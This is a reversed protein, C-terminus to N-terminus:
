GQRALRLFRLLRYLFPRRLATSQKGIIAYALATFARSAPSKADYLIVPKKVYLAEHVREDEPILSLVKHGTADEVEGKTLEHRKGEYRNIVVGLVKTGREEALNIAKMTDTLSPYDPTTIAIVEDSVGIVLNSEEMLGPASDLLIMEYEKRLPMLVSKIAQANIRIGRWDLRSITSPVMSLGDQTKYVVRTVPLTRPARLVDALTAPPDVLGLHLGLNSTYFNADVMVTPVHRSLAAGINAVTTTKGVGGKGSIVGIIRAM